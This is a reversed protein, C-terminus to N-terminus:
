QLQLLLDTPPRQQPHLPHHDYAMAARPGRGNLLRDPLGPQGHHVTQHLSDLLLPPPDAPASMRGSPYKWFLPFMMGRATIVPKPIMLGMPRVTSSNQVLRVLPTEPTPGMVRKSAVPNGTRM